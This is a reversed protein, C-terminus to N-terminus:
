TCSSVEIDKCNFSKKTRSSIWSVRIIIRQYQFVCLVYFVQEVLFLLKLLESRIGVYKLALVQDEMLSILPSVVLSIGRNMLPPYQYCLSKGFGVCMIGIDFKCVM